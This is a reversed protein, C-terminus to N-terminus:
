SILEKEPFRTSIVSTTATHTKGEGTKMEAIKGQHLTIGGLLQVDFLRKGDVRKVAERVVAFAEPLMDDENEERALRKKFEDTKAKLQDDSLKEMEAELRNIADVIPLLKNTQKEASGFLKDFIM